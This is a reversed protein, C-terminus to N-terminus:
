DEIIEAIADAMGAILQELGGREFPTQWVQYLDLDYLEEPTLYGTTGNILNLCVITREPFRECYNAQLISYAETPSGILITDGMQWVWIPLAM